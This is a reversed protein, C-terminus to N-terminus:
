PHQHQLFQWWRQWNAPTPTSQAVPVSATAISTADPIPVVLVENPRILRAQNHAWDIVSADSAVYTQTVQLAAQQARQTAIQHEILREEQLLPTRLQLTQNFRYLFLGGITITLLVALNTFSLYSRSFTIGFQRWSAWSSIIRQM